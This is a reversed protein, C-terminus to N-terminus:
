LGGTGRLHAEVEDPSARHFAGSRPDRAFVFGRAFRFLGRAELVEVGASVIREGGPEAALAEVADRAAQESDGSRPPGVLVFLRRAGGEDFSRVDVVRVTRGSPATVARGPPARSVLTFALWGAATVATAVALAAGWRLARRRRPEPHPVTSM